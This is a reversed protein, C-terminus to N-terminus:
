GEDPTKPLFTEAALKEKVEQLEPDEAAVKDLITRVKKCFGAQTCRKEIPVKKGKVKVTGAYACYNKEVSPDKFLDDYADPCYKRILKKLQRLDKRHQDYIEKKADSLYEKGHLINELLAWDHIAKAQSLISFDDALLVELKPIMQEYSDSGFEIKVEEESEECSPFADRLKVTSGVMTKLLAATQSNSKCGYLAFLKKQKDTRTSNRNCLIQKMESLDSCAFPIGLVDEVERSFSKIINDFTSETEMAGDFLFHGRYKMIHHIALYVLRVDHPKDSHILESRLHYITPYEKHYAKDDFSPSEFLSNKGKGTKDESHLMSESLRVFFQPDVKCVEDQFLDQLLALRQNRRQIRRRAIRSIRRDVATQAEPFLRSGWMAKQNLKLLEYKMDSAAWGVSDTGIDLGLYYEGFQKKHGM